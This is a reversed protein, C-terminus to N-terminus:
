KEDPPIPRQSEPYQALYQALAQNLIYAKQGKFGNRWYSLSEVGKKNADSIRGGFMHVYEHTPADATPRSPHEIVAATIPDTVIRMVLRVELAIPNGLASLPLSFYATQHVEKEM